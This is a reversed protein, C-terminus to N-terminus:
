DASDNEYPIALTFTTGVHLKSEVRITGGMLELYRAIIYLGLGTGPVNTVTRARFFREFLHAQDEESIGVGQDQVSLTLRNDGCDFRVTVAAHEGSYKLANSLLNVLIKRLLSADLRLPHPCQGRLAIRQGAKRLGQTEAVLDALLESLDCRVPHAAVRGEELRGVSLFEELIDNLHQVAAQIRALHARRQEQQGGETYKEVLAASTLVVALPTRFEHSAMTVFRLKMEGVEHEAALAQTLEQSRRELQELTVFLAHTREQVRRELEANGLRLQENAAALEQNLRNVKKQNRQQLYQRAAVQESVDTAVAAIGTIRGQENRLPHYVFTVQIDKPQGQHLVQLPVEPAVRPAGTQLVEDLIERLGRNRADPLVEFLPQNLVEVGTRGWLAQLGPNCVEVRYDPGSFVGVAVPAQEFVAQLQRQAALLRRTRLLESVETAVVAVGTVRGDAERLPQYVFNWYVTDPHGGRNIRVPLEDAVHAVGTTLVGDLLEEFGQGAAEPLLEFVPMGLVQAPALGWLTCMAPNALEVVHRPGRLVAVAVPAQEFLQQAQRQQNERQRRALVQETVDFAFISVGVVQEAERYAQHTVTFFRELPPQGAPQPVTLPQEYKFTTTGTRYVEDLEAVFGLPITEPHADAVSQGLLHRDPFLAQYAPNGYEYRHAPGRLICIAAPTHQLIEYFKAREQSFQQAKALLEAQLADARQQAQVQETVEFSCVILGDIHGPAAYRAQILSSFYREEIGGDAARVFPVVQNREDFSVGTTYVRHLRERVVPPLEPLAEFLPQGLQLERGPLRLRYAPNMMEYVLDPGRLVCIGAPVQEFFRELRQREREAEARAAREQAQSRRLAEEVASRPQDATDTFSAVLRTGQRLAALYFYSDIGDAQYPSEYREAQGSHFVRCCFAFVGSAEVHPFRTRMSLAEKESIGLIRQAAPSAYDVVFDLIETEDPGFVPRLVCVAALSVELLAPLLEPPFSTDSPM